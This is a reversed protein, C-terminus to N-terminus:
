ADEVGENRRFNLVVFTAVLVILFLIVGVASAYGFDGDAIRMYMQLAPVYTAMGPGGRTLIFIATFGQITGAIAFFLLIRFQPLLMPLDIHRFRAWVGAGDVKAADFYDANINLLGGLLILLAFADIWPFGVSIIAWLATHEDGLWARQFQELGLAGLLSNLLGTDPDFVQRWMLTFVLGPVVTPLVFLTRFLYAHSARRMWFILEAILLPITLTKLISTVTIIVMNTIGTRFYSDHFLINRYNDFGIFETVSRLSYTTFSYYFALAGPYYAFLLILVFAPLAFIYGTRARWIRRLQAITARRWRDVVAIVASAAAMTYVADAVIWLWRLTTSSAAGVAAAPDLQQWSGSRPIALWSAAGTPVIAELDSENGTAGQYVMTGDVGLISLNGHADGALVQDSDTDFALGRVAYQGVSTSWSPSGDAKLLSVDGRESGVLVGDLDPMGELRSVPASQQHVWVAKDPSSPTLYGVNSNKTGYVVGDGFATMATIPEAAQFTFKPTTQGKPFYSIYFRVGFAGVGHAVYLGDDRSALALVRGDVKIGGVPQFSADLESVQGDSTGVIVSGDSGAAIAGITKEFSHTQAPQLGHFRILDNKRTAILADGRGDPIALILQDSSVSTSSLLNTANARNMLMAFTVNLGIGLLIIVLVTVILRRQQSRELM